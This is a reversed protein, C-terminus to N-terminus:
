GVRLGRRVLPCGPSEPVLHAARLLLQRAGRGGGDVHREELGVGVNGALLELGGGVRQQGTGDFHGGPQQLAAPPRTDVQNASRAPDREDRRQQVLPEADRGGQDVLGLEDDRQAAQPCYRRRDLRACGDDGG